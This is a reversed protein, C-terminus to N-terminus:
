SVPEMEAGEQHSLIAKGKGKVAASRDSEGAVSAIRIRESEGVKGLREIVDDDDDDNDDGGCSDISPAKIGSIENPIPVATPNKPTVSARSQEALASDSPRPASLSSWVFSHSSTSGSSSPMNVNSLQISDTNDSKAYRNPITSSSSANTATPTHKSSSPKPLPKPMSLPNTEPSQPQIQPQSQPPIAAINAAHPASHIHGDISNIKYYLNRVRIYVALLVLSLYTISIVTTLL